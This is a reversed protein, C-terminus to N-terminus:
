VLSKTVTTGAKEELFHFDLFSFYHKDGETLGHQLSYLVQCLSFLLDVKAMNNPTVSIISPHKRIQMMERLDM